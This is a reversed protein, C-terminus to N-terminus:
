TGTGTMGQARGFATVAETLQRFPHQDGSDRRMEPFFRGNGAFVTGAGNEKGAAREAAGIALIGVDAVAILSTREGRRFQCVAHAAQFRHAHM